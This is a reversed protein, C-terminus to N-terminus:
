GSLYRAVAAHDKALGAAVMRGQSDLALGMCWAGSGIATTVRGDGSFGPDLAGSPTFRALAFASRSDNFNSVTGAAVVRQHDDIAVGFGLSETWGFSTFAKGDGSFSTDLSGNPRYRALAFDTAEEDGGVVIRDQDDVAVTRADAYGGPPTMATTVTGDQSFALDLNGAPTYRAVAFDDSTSGTTSGAVVIRRKSDIAVGAAYADQVAPIQTRTQGDGSFSTDPSGNALYRAVAFNTPGSYRYSSGAAVIRGQRDIAVGVVADRALGGIPTVVHGDGSFSPDPNGNAKLRGVAFTDRHSTDGPNPAAGGVVVRDQADTAISYADGHFPDHARGDGSFSTDLKGSPRFRLVVDGGGLVVIRGSSDIAVSSAGGTSPDIAIGDGSFSPDLDGAAAKAVGPFAV